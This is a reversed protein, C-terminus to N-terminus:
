HWPFIYTNFELNSEINEITNNISWEDCDIAEIELAGMKEALIALLGTGTGFDLVRKNNFDLLSMYEMMQYTTAHHGTGFSMKPTIQLDYKADTVAPHFNARVYAFVSNDEPHFVTIPQFGSEWEANWNVKEIVAKTFELSHEEIINDFLSANFDSENIYAKLEDEAEYFGEMEMEGLRAILIEAKESDDIKFTFELYAM